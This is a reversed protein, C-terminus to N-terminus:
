DSYLNIVKSKLIAGSTKGTVAFDVVPPEDFFQIRPESADSKPLALSVECPLASQYESAASGPEVQMADIWMTGTTVLQLQHTQALLAPNFTVAVRKWDDGADAEASGIGNGDALLVMTLHGKGRLYASATHPIFPWPVEFPAVETRMSDGVSLKLA